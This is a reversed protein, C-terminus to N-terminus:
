KSKQRESLQVLSYVSLEAAGASMKNKNLNDLLDRIIKAQAEAHRHIIEAAWHIQGIQSTHDTRMM